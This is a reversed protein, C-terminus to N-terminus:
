AIHCKKFYEFAETEGYISTFLSICEDDLMFEDVWNRYVDNNSMQMWRHKVLMESARGQHKFRDFSSGAGGPTMFIGSLAVTELTKDSYHDGFKTSITQRYEKSDCWTNYNLPIKDPLINTINLFERAYTKWTKVFNVRRNPSRNKLPVNSWYKTLSAAWNFFDRLIIISVHKDAHFYNESKIRNNINKLRKMEFSTVIARNHINIDGTQINCYEIDNPRMRCWCKPDNVQDLIWALAANQGSRSLGVFTIVKETNIKKYDIMVKYIHYNKLAPM